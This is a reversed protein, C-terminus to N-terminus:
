VVMAPVRVDAKPFHVDADLHGLLARLRWQILFSLTARPDFAGSRTSKKVAMPALTQL